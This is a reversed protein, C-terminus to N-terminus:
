YTWKVCKQRLRYELGRKRWKRVLHSQRKTWASTALQAVGSDIYQRATKSCCWRGKQVTLDFSKHALFHHTAGGRRLSYPYYSTDPFGLERLILNFYSRFEASSGKWLLRSKPHQAQFQVALSILVPDTVVLVQAQGQSTKSSPIVVNLADQFRHVVLHQSLLGLMESTRLFCDFGLGLLLGLDLRRHCLCYGVMAEVLPWTAPVVRQPQYTKTWNKYFQTSIPLSSRLHPYFRKLASLLHGSYSMPEGEQFCLNIFESVQKDLHSRKLMTVKKKGSFLLFKDIAKTYARLTGSSLGAYRLDKRPPM